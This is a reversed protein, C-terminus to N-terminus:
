SQTTHTNLFKVMLLHPVGGFHVLFDVAEVFINGAVFTLMECSSCVDVSRLESGGTLFTQTKNKDPLSNHNFTLSLESNVLQQRESVQQHLVTGFFGTSLRLILAKFQSIRGTM